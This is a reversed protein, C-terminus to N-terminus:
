SEIQGSERACNSESVGQETLQEGSKNTRYGCQSLIDSLPASLLGAASVFGSGPSCIFM